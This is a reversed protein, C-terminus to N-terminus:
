YVLVAGGVALGGPRWLLDMAPLSLRVCGHSAPVAPVSPYGHVAIGGNFYKPRYLRGLPGDDWADVQRFVRYSGAPTSALHWTGGQLYWQGSGTSTNFIRSVRGGDVVLLLQVGKAIELVHGVRSRAGPRVGADLRSWTEPGVVGDRVLGCAKQVALVAQRTLDGFSGDVSGAWYGLTALRAQLTVVAPGRAGAALVPRPVAAGARGEGEVVLGASFAAAVAGRLLERRAIAM